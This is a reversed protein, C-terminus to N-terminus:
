SMKEILHAKLQARGSPNALAIITSGAFILEDVKPNFIWAGDEERVALLIYDPSRLRLDGVRTPPFSAPVPVEEIRVNKDSRVMEDLFGVVHPRVMASALRIGGTFDPSIVADAGAKRMKEVNRLEQARAVIRLGPNLQRATIIIMLNRSDDGTVAFLGRADEIDAADLLDDDSADGQLYLLGPYKELNEEFRQEEIDIAVFHRGTNQLERGVSRGVRGFGCIVFHQRLKQIRKEMRRRRLSYDLDKELFFVSLTTFLFTLAGLGSIAILGAFLRDEIGHLPVIEGYGVTSITILTMYLSDSWTADDGGIQFFGVTGVGVLALVVMGAWAIRVVIRRLQTAVTLESDSLRRRRARRRAPPPSDFM